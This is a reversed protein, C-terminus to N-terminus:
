RCPAPHKQYFSLYEIPTATERPLNCAQEFVLISGYIHSSGPSNAEKHLEGEGEIKIGGLPCLSLPGPTLKGATSFNGFGGTQTFSSDRGLGLPEALLAFRM